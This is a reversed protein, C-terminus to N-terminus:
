RNVSSNLVERLSYPAGETARQLATVGNLGHRKCTEVYTRITAYNRAATIHQFQGAIKLKSKVGRLSRESVNNTFPLDFNVVWSFYEMRYKRLRKLLAREKKAAYLPPDEENEKEGLLWLEDLKLFFENIEIFSFQDSGEELLRKRKQYTESLHAALAEAWSHQTNEACSRLDRLLHANCEVNTYSFENGYNLSLHDHVVKTTENLLTLCQDEIVGAKNKHLHAKFLALKENGYFRLCARKENVMIVTDDWHILSQKLLHRRMEEAFPALIRAARGQLKTLYGESPVIEGFTFGKIMERTKNLSVNGENMLTLAMSQIRPGYQNEEKLRNPIPAHTKKHCQTCQYEPYSHRKKILVVEYDFEDKTKGAAIKKVKGQCHPCEFVPHEEYTNIEEDKFKKLTHRPHGPQGGKKKQTKGRSSPIRKKKQIPTQSTPLGSNTGDLRHIQNLRAVEKKLVEVQQAFTQNEKTLQTITQNQQEMQQHVKKLEELVVQHQVIQKKLEIQLKEKNELIEVYDHYLQNQYNGGTM